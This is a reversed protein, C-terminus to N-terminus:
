PDLADRYNIRDVDPSPIFETHYDGASTLEGVRYGLDSGARNVRRPKRSIRHDFQRDPAV